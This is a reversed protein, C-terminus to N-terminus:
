MFFLVAISFLPQQRWSRSGLPILWFLISRIAWSWKVHNYVIRDRELSVGYLYICRVILGLIFIGFSIWTGRSLLFDYAYDWNM